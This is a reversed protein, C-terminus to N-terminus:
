GSKEDWMEVKRVTDAHRPPGGQSSSRPPPVPAGAVSPPVPHRGPAAASATPTAAEVVVQDLAAEVKDGLEPVKLVFISWNSDQEGCM